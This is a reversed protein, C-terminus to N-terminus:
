ITPLTIKFRCGKGAGTDLTITGGHAAVIKQAISLGLGAGGTQSNRTDDARVFPKFIDAAKEAPIGIGSDEFFVAAFDAEATLRVTVTTGPPNYLRANDALNHFVRSMQTTDLMAYVPTEPIDFVYDFGATELTPVLEAFLTRLFESVDIKEPSLNFEPSDLKSLEFLSHLLRSARLSNDRIIKLYLERETDPLDQKQQLLEAYGAASTLPNKLDHSIDLILRKRDEETQKRLATEQEIREAMSNFTEQLEAFENKLKLDVRATYDGGRLRRSGETLKRLPNTIRVATLRSFIFAFLGLLLLYFIFVAVLVGAVNQMDKSIYEDNHAIEFDIRLSTPFAVVLWFDERDNYLIDYYFPLGLSKSRRLFDTFEQPTLQSKQLTDLGQSYVIQYDKNIVQVGGGNEVIKAADINQYDDQMISGAPFDNRTLTKEIVSGAFSMLLLTCLAALLSLLFVILYNVVFQNSLKKKM